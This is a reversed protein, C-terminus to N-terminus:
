VIFDDPSQHGVFYGALSGIAAAFYDCFSIAALVIAKPFRALHGFRAIFGAGEFFTALMAKAAAQAFFV